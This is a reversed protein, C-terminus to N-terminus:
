DKLTEIQNIFYSKIQNLAL